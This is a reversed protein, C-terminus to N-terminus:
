VERRNRQGGGEAEGLEQQGPCHENGAQCAGPLIRERYWGYGRYGCGLQWPDAGHHSEQLVQGPLLGGAGGAVRDFSLWGPPLAFLLAHHTISVALTGM